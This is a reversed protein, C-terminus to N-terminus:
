AAAAEDVGPYDRAYTRLVIPEVAWKPSTRPYGEHNPDSHELWRYHYISQGGYVESLNRPPAAEALSAASHPAYHVLNQSPTYISGELISWDVFFYLIGSEPLLERGDFPPLDRCDIQALFGFAEVREDTYTRNKGEPWDFPTA